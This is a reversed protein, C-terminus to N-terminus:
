GLITAFDQLRQRHFFEQRHEGRLLDLLKPVLQESTARGADEATAAPETESM